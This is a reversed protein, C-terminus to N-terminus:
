LFGVSGVIAWVGIWWSVARGKPRNWKEQAMITFMISAILFCCSAILAPYWYAALTQWWALSDYIGPLIVISTVGYLTVGFLQIACAIYGLEFVHYTKLAHWTPWWKWSIYQAVEGQVNSDKRAGSIGGRRDPTDKSELRSINQQAETYIEEPNAGRRQLSDWNCAAEDNKQEEEKDEHHHHPVIHGFFTHLKADLFEKEVDQHGQFLKKMAAGAFSGDNVAELYAMVGGIQYLCAGFFFMLPVGYESEKPFESSPWQQPTWSWAGDIVFMASGISYCFGSWFAMNRSITLEVRALLYTDHCLLLM